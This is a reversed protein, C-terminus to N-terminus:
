FSKDRAWVVWRHVHSGGPRGVRQNKLIWIDVCSSRVECLTVRPGLAGDMVAGADVLCAEDAASLRSHRRHGRGVPNEWARHGTGKGVDWQWTASGWM